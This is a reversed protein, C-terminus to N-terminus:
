LIIVAALAAFGGFGHVVSSGAFDYFGKQDLWGTGWKWSGSIPYVFCVLLTAYILFSSLKVREAVAGSVITAATAAFMAQFIFDTWITYDAYDGTVNATRDAENAFGNMLPSGPSFIGNWDTGVEGPYMANFGWLMYT